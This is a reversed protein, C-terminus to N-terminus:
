RRREEPVGDGGPRDGYGGARAGPAGRGTGAFGGRGRACRMFAILKRRGSQDKARWDLLQARVEPHTVAWSANTEGSSACGSVAGLAVFGGLAVVGAVLTGGIRNLRGNRTM